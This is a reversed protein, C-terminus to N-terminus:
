DLPPPQTTVLATSAWPTLKMSVTCPVSSGPPEHRRTQYRAVAQVSFSSLRPPNGPRDGALVAAQATMGGGVAGTTDGMVGPPPGPGASTIRSHVLVAGTRRVGRPGCTKVTRAATIPAGRLAAGM